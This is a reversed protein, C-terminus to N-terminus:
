EKERAFANLMIYKRKNYYKASFDLITNKLIMGFIGLIVFVLLVTNINWFNKLIFYLAIPFLLRFLSMLFLKGNFGQGGSFAKIKENLQIPTTNFLGFFLAIYVTVGANFFAFAVILRYIDWGFLLLPLSLLLLLWVSLMMLWWKAELYDRYRISQSMLLPYYESDWAPVFNGFNIIFIATLSVATFVYLFENDKYMPAYFVFAAFIIFFVASQIIKKTRTNRLIMRIDNQIFAGTLGTNRLFKIDASPSSKSETTRFKGDLYFNREMYRILAVFSAFFGFILLFFYLYDGQYIRVYFHSVPKFLEPAIKISVILGIIVLSFLVQINQLRDNLWALMNFLFLSILLSFVWLMIGKLDFGHYVYVGAVLIVWLMLMFLMPNFWDRVLNYLIIKRKRVPLLMFPKIHSPKFSNTSLLAFFSIILFLYIYDNLKIFYDSGPFTESILYYSGIGLAVVELLVFLYFVFLLLKSFLKKQLNLSRWFKKQHLKWFDWYNFSM